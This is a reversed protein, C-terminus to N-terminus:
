PRTGARTMLGDLQAARAPDLLRLIDRERRAGEVDGTALRALALNFRANADSPNLAAARALLPLAEGARDHSRLIFGLYGHAVADDPAARIALRLAQEADTWHGGENLARGAAILRPADEPALSPLTALASVAEAWRGQAQLVLAWNRIAVVFDPKLRVAEAFAREAEDPKGLRLRVSGLNNWGDARAPAMEVARALSREADDFRGAKALENGLDFHPVFAAPSSQAMDTYLPLEDRWVRSRVVTAGSFLILLAAGAIVALGQRKQHLKQWCAAAALCFGFSPIYLFREAAAGGSVSVIGLVPLLFLLTWSLGAAGLRKAGVAWAAAFVAIAALGGIVVGPTLSLDPSTYFASLPWPVALLKFYTALKPLLLRITSADEVHHLGVGAVGWRLAFVVASAALAGILWRANREIWSAPRVSPRDVGLADWALWAPITMLASEKSLAGLAVCVSSAVTAVRARFLCALFAFLAAWLDTRGSVFAVAEVHVPHAAFLLGGFLASPGDDLLRRLFWVVLACVAGHLLVNTLHYAWAKGGGLSGDAVLSLLVVPRFYGTFDSQSGLTFESTLLAGVGGAALRAHTLELLMPDDWVLQFGLTPLYLLIALAAAIAAARGDKDRSAKM